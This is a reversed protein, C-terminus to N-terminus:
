TNYEYGLIFLDARTRQDDPLTASDLTAFNRYFIWILLSKSPFIHM